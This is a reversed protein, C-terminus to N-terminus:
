RKCLDLPKTMKMVKRMMKRMIKSSYLSLIDLIMLTLAEDEKSGDEIGDNPAEDFVLVDNCYQEVNGDYYQVM